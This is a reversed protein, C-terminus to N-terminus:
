IHGFKEGAHTWHSIAIPTSQPPLPEGSVKRSKPPNQYLAVRALHGDTAWQGTVHEDAFEISEFEATTTTGEIIRTEPGLFSVPASIAACLVIVCIAGRKAARWRSSSPGLLYWGVGAGALAMVPLYLFLHTRILTFFYDITVGATLSFGIIVLPAVFLSLITVKPWSRNKVLALGGGAIAVPVVLPLLLYMTLPPITSTGPYLSQATDAVLLVFGVGLTGIAILLHTLRNTNPLWGIGVGILVVWAVFLGPARVLRESQVIHLGMARVAFPHYGLSYVWVFMAAGILGITAM